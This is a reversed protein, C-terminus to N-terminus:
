RIDAAIRAGAVARVITPLRNAFLPRYEPDPLLHDAPFSSHGYISEGENALLRYRASM